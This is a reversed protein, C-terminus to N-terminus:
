FIGDQKTMGMEQGPIEKELPIKTKLLFEM